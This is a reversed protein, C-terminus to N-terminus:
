SGENWEKLAEFFADINHLPTHPPTDCGSSLVFNPFKKTNDLLHKVTQKMQAPMADKFVSVPDISGMGLATAPVDEMVECMACKNGFHYMAAGTEVM